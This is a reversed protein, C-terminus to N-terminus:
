MYEAWESATTIGQTGEERDYDFESREEVCHICLCSSVNATVNKTGPLDMTELDVLNAGM